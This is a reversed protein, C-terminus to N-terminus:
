RSIFVWAGWAALFLGTVPALKFRTPLVKELLVLLTILAIWVINM